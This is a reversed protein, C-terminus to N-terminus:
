PEAGATIMLTRTNTIDMGFTATLGSQRKTRKNARGERVQPVVWAAVGPLEGNPGLNAANEQVVKGDRRGDWLAAAAAVATRIGAGHAPARDAARIKGRAQAARAEGAPTLGIRTKWEAANANMANMARRYHEPLAMYLSRLVAVQLEVNEEGPFSPLQAAEGGVTEGGKKLWLAPLSDASRLHRKLSSRLNECDKVVQRRTDTSASMRTCRASVCAHINLKSLEVDAEPADDSTAVALIDKVEEPSPRYNLGNKLQLQYM